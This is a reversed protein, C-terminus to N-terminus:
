EPLKEINYQNRGNNKSFYLAKDAALLLHSQEIGTSHIRPHYFSVGISITVKQFQSDIHKIGMLRISELIHKAVLAAGAQDTDPLIAAFEEGGYRAVIDTGRKLSKRLARAVLRLCADGSIHGYHDNFNKFYDIDIMLLALPTETRKARLFEHTLVKKFERRNPLKTLSDTRAQIELRRNAKLLKLELLKREHIDEATGYWCTVEGNSNLSPTARLRMWNWGREVHCFRVEMDLPEGTSLSHEWHVLALHRDDAHITRVWEDALTQKRTFGTIKEFRSSIDTIRGDPSATWPIQPNLEVMNRYHEKSQRLATEMQKLCRIDIMAVSLGMVKGQSDRSAQMRIFFFHNAEPMQFEADLISESNYACLLAHRIIPVIGPMLDAVKQGNVEDTNKGLLNALYDNITVYRLSTDIFCLGAPANSYISELELLRQPTNAPLHTLDRDIGRYGRFNGNDDFLPVASTELLIESGDARFHRKKLGSFPLREASVKAFITRVRQAEDAPMFDCLSKGLIEHPSRGFFELCKASSFTYHGNVDIEWIWDSNNEIIDRLTNLQQQLAMIASKDKNDDDLM